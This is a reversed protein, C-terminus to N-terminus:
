GIIEKKKEIRNYIKKLTKFISHIIIKEEDVTNPSISFICCRESRNEPGTAPLDTVVLWIYNKCSCHAQASPLIAPSLSSHLSRSM